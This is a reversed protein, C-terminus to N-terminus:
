TAHLPLHSADSLAFKRCTMPALFNATSLEMSLYKIRGGSLEGDVRYNARSLIKPRYPTEINLNTLRCAVKRGGGVPLTHVRQEAGM